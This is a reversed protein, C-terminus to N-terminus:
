GESAKKNTALHPNQSSFFIVGRARSGQLHPGRGQTM